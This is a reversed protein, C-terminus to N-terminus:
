SGVVVVALTSSTSCRLYCTDGPQLVSAAKALTAFPRDITGPNSDSGAPNVYYASAEEAQPGGDCSVLAVAIVLLIAGREVMAKSMRPLGGKM